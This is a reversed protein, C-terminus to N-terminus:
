RSRNASRSFHGSSFPRHQPSRNTARNNPKVSEEAMFEAWPFLPRQPEDARPPSRERQRAPARQGESFGITAHIFTGM